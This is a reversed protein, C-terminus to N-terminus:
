TNLRAFTQASTNSAAGHNTKTDIEKQINATCTQYCVHTFDLARIAMSHMSTASTYISTLLPWPIPPLFFHGRQCCDDATDEPLNTTMGEGWYKDDGVAEKKETRGVNRFAYPQRRFEHARNTHPEHAVVNRVYMEPKIQIFITM